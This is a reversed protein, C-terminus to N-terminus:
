QIAAATRSPFSASQSPAIRSNTFSFRDPSFSYPLSIGPMQKRGGDTRKVRKVLGVAMSVPVRRDDVWYVAAYIRFDGNWRYPIPVSQLIFSTM